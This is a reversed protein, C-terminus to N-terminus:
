FHRDRDMPAMMMGSLDPLLLLTMDFFTESITFAPNGCAWATAADSRLAPTGFALVLPLALAFFAFHSSPRDHGPEALSGGADLDLRELPTALFDGSEFTDVDAQILQATGTELQHNV